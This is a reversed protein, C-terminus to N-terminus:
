IMKKEQMTLFEYKFLTGDKQPISPQSELCKTAIRVYEELVDPGAAPSPDETLGFKRFRSKLANTQSIFLVFILELLNKKM